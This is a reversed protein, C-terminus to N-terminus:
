GRPLTAVIVGSRTLTQFYQGLLARSEFFTLKDRAAFEDIIDEFTKKGDVAEYVKRGIGDLVYRKKDHMKLRSHLFQMVAGKYKLRVEVEIEDPNQAPFVKAGINHVPVVKLSQRFREEQQATSVNKFM